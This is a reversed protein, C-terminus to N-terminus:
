DAKKLALNIKFISDRESCILPFNFIYVKDNKIKIEVILTM